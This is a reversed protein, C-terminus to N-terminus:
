LLVVLKTECCLMSLNLLFLSRVYTIFCTADFETEYCSLMSFRFSPLLIQGCDRLEMIQHFIFEEVGILREM